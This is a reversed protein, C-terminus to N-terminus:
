IFPAFKILAGIFAAQGKSMEGLSGRRESIERYLTFDTPLEEENILRAIGSIIGTIEEPTKPNNRAIYRIKIVARQRDYDIDTVSHLALILYGCLALWFVEDYGRWNPLSFRLLAPQTYGAQKVHRYLMVPINEKGEVKKLMESLEKREEVRILKDIKELVSGQSPFGLKEFTELINDM